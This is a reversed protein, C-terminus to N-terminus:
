KLLKLTKEKGIIELSEPLPLGTEKGIFIKYILGMKINEQTTIEKLAVLISDKEWNSITSLKDKLKKAIEKEKQDLDINSGKVLPGVLTEFDLLTKMRSKAIEWFKDFISSEVDKLRGESLELIQSKLNSIQSKRIYEGNIWDLKKQDFISPAINISELNFIKEIEEKSLIERDDKPSWGLLMLYNLLAEPLFGEEKFELVSKAGRRKSLKKRDTGLINPVHAFEPAKWGFAEYLMIHKPTSSIWDEGRIVHTINGAHDDIVNALHYTPFGDSKLIIFDEIDKNEFEVLKNGVKDMWSTKGTKSTIFRIANDEKKAFGKEVLDEAYKKYNEVLDSQHIIHGDWSIGLWLLSEKIADEAGEVIRAQDTDEIRLLFKGNNAKAFFYNFLATRINGIHPIGTPSPAFRVLVM